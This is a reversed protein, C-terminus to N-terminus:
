RVGPQALPEQVAGAVADAEVHVFVGVDDAAVRQRELGPMANLTSGPTYRSPAPARPDLVDDHDGVVAALPEVGAGAVEDDELLPRRDNCSLRGEQLRRQM